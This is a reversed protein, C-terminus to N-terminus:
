FSDLLCSAGWDLGTFGGAWEDQVAPEPIVHVWTQLGSNVDFVM